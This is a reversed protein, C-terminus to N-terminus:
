PLDGGHAFDGFAAGQIAEMERQLRARFARHRHRGPRTRSPKSTVEFRAVLDVDDAALTSKSPEFTTRAAFHRDSGHGNEATVLVALREPLVEQLGGHSLLRGGARSQSHQQNEGVKRWGGPLTVWTRGVGHRANSADFWNHAAMPGCGDVPRSQRGHRTSARREDTKIARVM